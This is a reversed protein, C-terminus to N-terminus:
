TKLVLVFCLTFQFRSHPKIVELGVALSVSGGPSCGGFLAVLQSGLTGFRFRYLVNTMWVM